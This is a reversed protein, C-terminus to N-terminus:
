RTEKPPAGRLGRHAVPGRLRDVVDGADIARAVIEFAADSALLAADVHAPQHAYSAYFAGSALFGRDLMEQTYLTHLAPADEHELSFSPLPAIGRTTLSLGHTDALRRWGARMRDGMAALHQAVGGPQSHAGETAVREFKAITALAATPGIRDTWSTSSVFARGAAEMVSRRGIVAAMPYGNSMGKAFVCLDPQTHMARHAGGIDLRFGSTIEDFILVGGNRHTADRLYAADEESLREYRAPEIVVAALDDGAETIAADFNTRDAIDFAISTGSLARPVGATSVRPLLLRDLAEPRDLNAALYWDHWGHYGAVLVVQKGTAARATRVAVSMAEGGSRTCRVQEAWPHLDCLKEALEVEEPANLTCMNGARVADIVAADVDPDAFGLPCAGVGHLSVDVFTRGDLDTVEVGQARAYYSPWGDPLFLEPRKSLLQTGGPIRECARAYLAQGASPKGSGADDVPM